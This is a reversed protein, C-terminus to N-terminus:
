WSDILEQPPGEAGDDKLARNASARREYESAAEEMTDIARRLVIVTASIGDIKDPSHDKDPKILQGPGHRITTNSAMWRLVPNGGHRLSGETIRKELEKAGPSMQALTQPVAIVREEGMADKIHTVMQTV